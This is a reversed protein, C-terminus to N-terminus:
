TFHSSKKIRDRSELTNSLLLFLLFYFLDKRDGVSFVLKTLWKVCIIVCSFGNFYPVDIDNTTTPNNFLFRVFKVLEGVDCNIKNFFVHARTNFSHAVQFLFSCLIQTYDKWRFRWPYTVIFFTQILPHNLIAGDLTRYSFSLSAM